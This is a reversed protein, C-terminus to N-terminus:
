NAGLLIQDRGLYLISASQAPLQFAHGSFRQQLGAVSQEVTANTAADPAQAQWAAARAADLSVSFRAWIKGESRWVQVEIVRGDVATFRLLRDIKATSHDDTVEDFELHDLVGALADGTRSANAAPAPADGPWFYDGHRTLEFAKGPAPKISVEAIRAMPLDILSRDIWGVPEHEFSLAVDSLWSQARGEVRVYNGDLKPHERGVILTMPAGGGSLRIEVGQANAAAVDEVGLRSYL